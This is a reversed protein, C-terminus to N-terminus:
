VKSFANGNDADDTDRKKEIFKKIQFIGMAKNLRSLIMQLNTTPYYYNIAKLSWEGKKSLTFYVERALKFSAVLKLKELQALHYRTRPANEGIEKSIISVYKREKHLARLINRKMPDRLLNSMELPAERIEPTKEGYSKKKTLSRYIILIFILVILYYLLKMLMNITKTSLEIGFIAMTITLKPTKFTKLFM